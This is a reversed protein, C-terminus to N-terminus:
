LRKGCDISHTLPMKKLSKNPIAAKKWIDILPRNLFYPSIQVEGVKDNVQHSSLKRNLIDSFRAVYSIGHIDFLQVVSL